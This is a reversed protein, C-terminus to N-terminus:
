QWRPEGKRNLLTNLEAGEIWRQGMSSLAVPVLAPLRTAVEYEDFVVDVVVGVGVSDSNTTTNEGPDFEGTSEHIERGDVGVWRPGEEYGGSGVGGRGEEEEIVEGVTEREEWEEGVDEGMGTNAWGAPSPDEAFIGAGQVLDLFAREWEKAGEGVWYPLPRVMHNNQKCGHELVLQRLRIRVLAVENMYQAFLHPQVPRAMFVFERSAFLAILEQIVDEHLFWCPPVESERVCHFRVFKRVWGALVPLFRVREERGMRWWDCCTRWREYAVEEETKEEEKKKKKETEKGEFMEGMEKKELYELIAPHMRDRVDGGNRNERVQKEIEQAGLWDVVDDDEGIDFGAMNSEMEGREEVRNASEIDKSNM